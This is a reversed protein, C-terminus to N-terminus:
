PVKCKSLREKPWKKKVESWFSRLLMWGLGPFFDESGLVAAPHTALSSAIGMPMRGRVSPRVEVSEM